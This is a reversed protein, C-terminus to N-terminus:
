SFASERPGKLYSQWRVGGSHANKREQLRFCLRSGFRRTEDFTLRHVTWLLCDTYTYRLMSAHEHLWQLLPFAILIVHKTNTVKPIWCATRMRQTTVHGTGRYLTKGCKRTFPVIKQFFNCFVFHTNQNERCTKNSVNRMRHLFSRSIIFFTYQDEHLTGKIRTRNYHFKEVSKRFLRLYWIEHLDTRYSGLQEHQSVSPCVHLWYDSEATERVRKLIIIDTFVSTLYDMRINCCQHPPPNM